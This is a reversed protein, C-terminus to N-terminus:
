LWATGLTSNLAVEESGGWPTASCHLASVEQLAAQGQKQFPPLSTGSPLRRRQRKSQEKLCAATSLRQKEDRTKRAGCIMLSSTALFVHSSCWSQTTATRGWMRSVPVPLLREKRNRNQAAARLAREWDRLAAPAKAKVKFHQTEM